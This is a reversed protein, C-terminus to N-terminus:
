PGHMTSTAAISRRAVTFVPFSARGLLTAAGESYRVLPSRARNLPPARPRRMQEGVVLCPAYGGVDGVATPANMPPMQVRITRSRTHEPNGCYRLASIFTNITRPTTTSRVPPPNATMFLAQLLLGRAHHPEIDLSHAAPASRGRSDVSVRCHPMTDFRSPERYRRGTDTSFRDLAAPGSAPITGGASVTFKTCRSVGIQNLDVGQTM